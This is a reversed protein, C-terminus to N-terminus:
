KREIVLDTYDISSGHENYVECSYRGSDQLKLNQLQLVEGRVIANHSVPQRNHTWRVNPVSGSFDQSLRCRLKVSQGIRAHQIRNEATIISSQTHENVVVEAVADAEGAANKATCIYRGADSVQIGYFKLQGEHAIVSKLLKGGM